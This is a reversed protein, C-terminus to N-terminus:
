SLDLTWAGAPRRGDDTETRGFIYVEDDFEEITWLEAFGADLLDGSARTTWAEREPLYQWITGGRDNEPDTGRGVDGIALITGDSLVTVARAIGSVDDGDRDAGRIPLAHTLGEGARNAVIAIPTEDANTGQEGVVIIQDDSITVGWFQVDPLTGILPSWTDERRILILGSDRDDITQTGVAIAIDGDVVIDNIVGPFDGGIDVV